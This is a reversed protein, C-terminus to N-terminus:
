ICCCWLVSDDICDITFGLFFIDSFWDRKSFLLSCFSVWLPFNFTSNGMTTVAATVWKSIDANFAAALYFATATYTLATSPSVVNFLFFLLFQWLVTGMFCFCNFLPSLSPFTSRVPNWPRWRMRAGSQFTRMSHQLVELRQLFIYTLATSTQVWVDFFLVCFTWFWNLLCDVLFCFFHFNFTSWRLSTVKATIWM